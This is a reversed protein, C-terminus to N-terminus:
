LCALLQGGLTRFRFVDPAEGRRFVELGQGRVDPVRASLVGFGCVHRVKHSSGGAM